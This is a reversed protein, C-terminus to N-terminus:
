PNGYYVTDNLFSTEYKSTYAVLTTDNELEIEVKAYNGNDFINKNLKPFFFHSQAFIMPHYSLYESITSGIKITGILKKDSTFLLRALYSVEEFRWGAFYFRALDTIDSLFISDKDHLTIRISKCVETRYEIPTTVMGGPYLTGNPDLFDRIQNEMEKDGKISYLQPQSYGPVEKHLSTVVIFLDACSIVTDANFANGYAYVKESPRHIFYLGDGGSWKFSDGSNDCSILFIIVISSLLIIGQITNYRKKM